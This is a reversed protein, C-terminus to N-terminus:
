ISLKKPGNKTIFDLVKLLKNWQIDFSNCDEYSVTPEGSYFRNTTLDNGFLTKLLKLYENKFAIIKPDKSDRLTSTEFTFDYSGEEYVGVGVYFRVGNLEFYINDYLMGGELMDANPFNKFRTSYTKKIKNFCSNLQTEEEKIVRRVLRNLDSETLRVIKRM